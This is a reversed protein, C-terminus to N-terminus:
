PTIDEQTKITIQYAGSAHHLGTYAVNARLLDGQGTLGVEYSNKIATPVVIGVSNNAGKAAELTVSQATVAKFADYDTKNEFDRGLTLGVTREGYYNFAQGRGTNKLRYAPNGSDDVTFEFTDTDTVAVGTPVEINYSGAGYPTSTPWTETPDSQTAEERGLISVNFGLVGDNITFTFSSVICGTYGFVQNNRVVTISATRTPIAANSPTFVYTFDTTGSKQVSARAIHLFYPACDDLFDMEIDGGVQVDGPVAWVADATQRIPRRYQPEGQYQLSENNIPIFKTPAVYTGPITEFAFGLSGSAGTGPM